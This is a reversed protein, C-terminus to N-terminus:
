HDKQNAYSYKKLAIQMYLLIHHTMGVDQEKRLCKCVKRYCKVYGLSVDTSASVSVGGDTHRWQWVDQPGHPLLLTHDARSAGSRHGRGELSGAHGAGGHITAGRPHQSLTDDAKSKKKYVGPM